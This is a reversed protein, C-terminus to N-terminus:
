FIRIKKQPAAENGPIMDDLGSKQLTEITKEKGHVNVMENYFEKKGEPAALIKKARPDNLAVNRIVTKPMFVKAAGDVMAPLQPILDRLLDKWSTDKAQELQNLSGVELGKSYMTYMRDSDIEKSKIANDLLMKTYEGFGNNGGNNNGMNDIFRGLIGMLLNQTQQAQAIMMEYIKDNSNNNQVVPFFAAMEEKKAQADAKQKLEDYSKHLDFKGEKLNYGLKKSKDKWKLFFQYKGGGYLIGIDHKDPPQTRWVNIQVFKKLSEDYKNLSFTFNVGQPIFEEFIETVSEITKEEERQDLELGPFFGNIEQDEVKM